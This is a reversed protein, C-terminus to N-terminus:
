VLRPRAATLCYDVVQVEVRGRYERRLKREVQMAAHTQPLRPLANQRFPSSPLPSLSACMYYCCLGRGDM